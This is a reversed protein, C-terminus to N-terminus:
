AADEYIHWVTWEVHITGVYSAGMPVDDFGTAVVFFQRTQPPGTTNVEAWMVPHHQGGIVQTGVHLLNAGAPMEVLQPGSRLDLPYKWVCRRALRTM